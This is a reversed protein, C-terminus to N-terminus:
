RNWVGAMMMVFLVSWAIALVSAPWYGWANSYSWAPWAFLFLGFLVAM